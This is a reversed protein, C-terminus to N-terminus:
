KALLQAVLRRRRRRSLKGNTLRVRLYKLAELEIQRVRERTLGFEQALTDLKAPEEGDLGFRRMLVHRERPHLEFLLRNLREEDAPSEPKAGAELRDAVSPPRLSEPNGARRDLSVVYLGAGGRAEALLQSMKRNTKRAFDLLNPERQMVQRFAEMAKLMEVNRTLACIPTRVLRASDQLARTVAQRIWWVAYTSFRNGAEPDFKDVAHILGLNGEQILDILPLGRGEYRRAIHLVLRLNKEILEMRAAAAGPGKSRVLRGLRVEDARTLLGKQFADGKYLEVLVDPAERKATPLDIM